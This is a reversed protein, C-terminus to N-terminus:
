SDVKVAIRRHSPSRRRSLAIYVPAFFGLLLAFNAAEPVLSLYPAREGSSEKTNFGLNHGIENDTRSLMFTVQDDSDAALFDSLATSSFSVISNGVDSTTVNLIGLFTTDDSVFGSGSGTDNGPANNWTITAEDWTQNAENDNLGYVHVAFTTPSDTGDNNGTLVLNLSTGAFSGDFSSLDFRLYPKRTVASEFGANKIFMTSEIGYNDDANSGAVVQADASPFINIAGMLSCSILFFAVLLTALNKKM